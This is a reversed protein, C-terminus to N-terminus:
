FDVNDSLYCYSQPPHFDSRLLTPEIPQFMRVDKIEIAFGREVGDFYSFFSHENIGSFGKCSEWLAKPNDELIKEVLFKGVIKKVPYSSYMYVCKTDKQFVKRRFEFKKTGKGIAECYKPKISLIVNM